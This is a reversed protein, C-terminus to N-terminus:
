NQDNGDGGPQSGGGPTNFYAVLDTNQQLTFTYTASQSVYASQGQLKWGLFTSGSAPTATVTCQHGLEFTGAGSVTGNGNATVYVRASGDPVDTTANESSFLSAGRTQTFAMGSANVSRTGVLKAVDEANNISYNGYNASANAGTDKIGYAYMVVDGTTAPLEAPFTHNEGGDSVVMSSVLQLRQESSKKFLIYVVKSVQSGAGETLAIDIKQASRQASIAPLGTNGDTLQINEYSIQAIGNAAMSLAFNRKTFLNRSSQLGEKPIAIVPAMAASIQSMLKMRARQNVQSGTSPNAVNPNYDRAITEGAVTSVVMNGLKGRGKLYGYLKM